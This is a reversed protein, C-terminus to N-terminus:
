FYTGKKLVNFIEQSMLEHAIENPHGDSFLLPPNKADSYYQIVAQSLDIFLVDGTLANLLELPPRNTRGKHLYPIHMVVLTADIRKVIEIMRSMLYKMSKKHPSKINSNKLNLFNVKYIRGFKSLIIRGGWIIDEIGFKDDFLIEEYFLRGKKPSYRGPPVHIYPNGLNDFDMYSVPVCFPAYSPACPSMNRRIHDNIFGYIVIKPKLDSNRELLQLSQVTGYSGYAFNAVSVDFKRSLIETFTKENEMGLGWSFSGGVTMIDVTGPTQKGRNNVRAGRQDTFLHYSWGMKIHRRMTSANKASTFGMIKDAQRPWDGEIRVDNISKLRHAEYSGLGILASTFLFIILILRMLLFLHKSCVKRM